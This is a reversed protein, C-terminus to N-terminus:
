QVLEIMGAREVNWSPSAGCWMVFQKTATKRATVNFAFRRHKAPDVGLADWPIRWETNWHTDDAVHAAYQVNRAVRQMAENLPNAEDSTEFHGSPYGRLLLIPANKGAATSRIAIEVADNAAWKNGTRLPSKSSVENEFAVYLAQDDYRLWAQSAPKSGVGHLDVQLPMFKGEFAEDWEQSTVQGDIKIHRQRRLVKYAPVDRKRTESPLPRIEHTVPWSARLPHKVLGIKKFPIPKFGIRWAPSNRKLRFDMNEADVLLPDQDLMNNEVRLYPRANKHINDWKGGWCVNQTILNNEPANPEQDLITVLAPYRTSWPPEKYPMALLREMLTSPKDQDKKKRKRLGRADVHMAPSCDVFLNNRVICDRGGGIYAAKTVKYFVNGLITFGSVQDDLYIGQAGFRGPGEIHHFFNHRIVTGQKTWDRGSYFAGVDGTEYCVSHIENFEVLHDNGYSLIANHPANHILNHSARCGVGSFKVGPRYSRRRRAYHHIHNNVAYNGCPTLTKRDGGILAIGCEGNDYVDCHLVGNNKGGDIRVGDQGTNRLTCGIVRNAHGNRILVGDSRAGEITLRELVVHSTETLRVVNYPMSVYAEGQAVPAPPWFYLMGTPRDIYYEGPRDLEPLLNLAYYRKGERCSKKRTQDSMVMQKKQTDIRDVQWWYDDWDARWYGHLWVDKEQVWRAPRPDDYHWTGSQKPDPITGIIAFGENPWRALTMPKARVLAGRARNRTGASFFLEPPGAHDRPWRTGFPSMKGFDTISNARLDLQLVHGKAEPPLRRLASPDTVPSWGAVPKGGVLRVIENNHARYVIPGREAGSDQEKELKFTQELFYTGGRLEVSVGRAPFKNAQKLARIAERARALTAFPGDTGARSPAPRTGSWADNGNTAIYLRSQAHTTCSLAWISCGITLLTLIATRRGNNM